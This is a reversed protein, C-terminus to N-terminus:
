WYAAGFVPRTFCSCPPTAHAAGTNAVGGLIIVDLKGLPLQPQTVPIRAARGKEPVKRVPVVDTEGHLRWLPVLPVHCRLMALGETRLQPQPLPM